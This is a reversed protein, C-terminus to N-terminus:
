ISFRHSSKSPYFPSDSAVVLPGDLSVAKFITEGKRGSYGRSIAKAALAPARFSPILTGWSFQELTCSCKAYIKFFKAKLKDHSVAIYVM